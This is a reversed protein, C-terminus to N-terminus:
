LFFDGSFNVFVSFLKERLCRELFKKQRITTSPFKNLIRPFDGRLCLSLFIVRLTDVSRLVKGDM